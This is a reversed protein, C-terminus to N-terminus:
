REAELYGKGCLMAMVERLHLKAASVEMLSTAEALDLYAALNTGVDEAISVFKSHDLQLSRAERAPLVPADTTV